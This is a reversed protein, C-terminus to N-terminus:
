HKFILQKDRKTSDDFYIRNLCTAKNYCKCNLIFVNACNALRDFVDQAIDKNTFVEIKGLKDYGVYAKEITECIKTMIEKIEPSQFNSFNHTPEILNMTVGRPKKLAIDILLAEINFMTVRDLYFTKEYEGPPSFGNDVQTESFYESKWIGQLKIWNQRRKYSVSPIQFSIKKRYSYKLTARNSFLKCLAINDGNVLSWLTHNNFVIDKSHTLPFLAEDASSTKTISIEASTYLIRWINGIARWHIEEFQIKEQTKSGIHIWLISIQGKFIYYFGEGTKLIEATKTNREELAVSSVGNCENLSLLSFMEELIKRLKNKDYVNWITNIDTWSLVAALEFLLSHRLTERKMDKNKCNCISQINTEEFISFLLCKMFHPEMMINSKKKKQVERQCEELREQIKKLSAKQEGFVLTHSLGHEYSQHKTMAANYTLVCTEKRWLIAQRTKIESLKQVNVFQQKDHKLAENSIERVIWNVTQLHWNCVNMNCACARFLKTFTKMCSYYNNSYTFLRVFILTEKCSIECFSIRKYIEGLYSLGENDGCSLKRKRCNFDFSNRLIKWFLEVRSDSGLISAMISDSIIYIAGRRFLVITAQKVNTEQNEEYLLNHGETHLICDLVNVAVQWEIEIIPCTQIDSSRAFKVTQKSQVSAVLLM